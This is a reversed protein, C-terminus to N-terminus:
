HRGALTKGEQEDEGSGGGVGGGGRGKGGWGFGVGSEGGDGSAEPDLAYRECLDSCGRDGGGDGILDIGGGVERGRERGGEGGM